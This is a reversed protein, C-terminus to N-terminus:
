ILGEEFKNLIELGFGSICYREKKNNLLKQTWDVIGGDAIELQLNGLAVIIKFQIGKYYNNQTSTDSLIEYGPVVNAIYDTLDNFFKAPYGDRKQLKIAVIRVGYITKLVETMTSLHEELARKEFIFNGTDVGSSVLCGITFHPAHGKMKTPQARVHRQVTAYKLHQEKGKFQEAKLKKLLAVHLALANTADALVECSRVSSVINKQDVTGVVSCTGLPLLPAVQCPEFGAQEFLKLADLSRELLRIYNTEVPLSFRNKEYHKLLESPNIKAARQSFVELLLSNLESGSLKNVLADLLEPTGTKGIIRKGISEKM